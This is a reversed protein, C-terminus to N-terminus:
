DIIVMVMNFETEGNAKIFAAMMGICKDTAM